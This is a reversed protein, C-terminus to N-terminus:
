LVGIHTLQAEETDIGTGQVGTGGHEVAGLAVTLTDAADQQHMGVMPFVQLLDVGAVDGSSNTQLVGGGAVGSHSSFCGMM